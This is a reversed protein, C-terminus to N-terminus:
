GRKCRSTAAKNRGYVLFLILVPAILIAGISSWLIDVGSIIHEKLLRYYAYSSYPLVLIIATLVGPTYRKLLLAQGIHAFVHAFFIFLLMLFIFHFSFVAALVTATTIALFIWFVDHAFQLTTMQFSSCFVKRLSAPLAALVEAKNHRIWKEVTLIEEFDHFMFVIPFLWFVSVSQLHADLWELIM